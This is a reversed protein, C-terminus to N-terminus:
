SLARGMMLNPLWTAIQPVYALLITIALIGLIYPWCERALDLINIRSFSSVAYLCMGVPPCLNGIMILLTMVVGMNVLDLGYSTAVPLFIPITILFIANGELFFGLCLMIVIIIAYIGGNSASMTTLAKIIDDPIRRYITLWGFFNAAGMIFMLGVSQKASAWFVDPLDRLRLDKYLFGLVIAYICAVVSAETPTFYGWTIGGIIIVPALLPLIGGVLSSWLERLSARPSKPFGRPKAMLYIVFMLVLGMMVGPVFGALFLRAVSVGTLAGYLVFPISPPIVPGITSAAAVIAASITPRYGNDVMAKHQVQGLGAADAVASGSMGSFIMSSIVSVQGLGGSFHGFLARAFRFIRNTIGGTNMLNGALIFFPIALLTFGTTGAYMRQPLMALFRGQGMGVFFGVATLGLAVALPLDLLILALLVLFISLTLM